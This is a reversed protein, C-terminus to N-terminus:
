RRVPEQPRSRLWLSVLQACADPDGEIGLSAPFAIAGEAVLAGYIAYATEHQLIVFLQGPAVGHRPALTDYDYLRAVLAAYEPALRKALKDTADGDRLVFPRVRGSAGLCGSARLAGVSAPDLPPLGWALRALDARAAMIPAIHAAAASSWTVAIEGNGPLNHYNTGVQFAHDPRLIWAAAPAGRPKSYVAQWAPWWFKDM